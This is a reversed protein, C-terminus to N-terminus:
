PAEGRLYAQLRRWQWAQEELEAAEYDFRDPAGARLAAARSASEYANTAAAWAVNDDYFYYHHVCNVALIAANAAHWAMNIPHGGDYIHLPKIAASAADMAAIAQPKTAEGNAFLRAMEIARRPRLDGPCQTEFNPLVHEACDAGFLRRERTKLLKSHSRIWDKLRTREMEEWRDPEDLTMLDYLVSAKAQIPYLEALKWWLEKPCNPHALAQLPKKTALDEIREASAQPDSKISRRAGVVSSIAEEKVYAALRRWQWVYEADSVAKNANTAHIQGDHLAVSAYIAYAAANAADEWQSNVWGTERKDAADAASKAAYITITNVPGSRDEEAVRAAACAKARRAEGVEAPAKAYARAVEIAKRPREDNRIIKEYLPLARMACDCAFLRLDRYSLFSPTLYKAVWLRGQQTELKVWKEPSELTMLDYAPSRRAEMPYHKALAWWFDIPCNPHQVAGEPRKKALFQIEDPTAQPDHIIDDLDRAGVEAPLLLPLLRHWQWRHEAMQGGPVGGFASAAQAPASASKVKPGDNYCAALAEFAACAADPPCWINRAMSPDKGAAEHAMSYAYHAAQMPAILDKRSLTGNAYARTAQVAERPRADHPYKKEFFPLAREACEANFLWRDKDEVKEQAYLAVWASVNDEELELWKDPSELRYLAGAPSQIAEVPYHGALSWWLKEPCNPHSIAAIADKSALARIETETAQPDAKIVEPLRVGVRARKTGQM